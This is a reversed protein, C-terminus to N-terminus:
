EVIHQAYVDNHSYVVSKQAGVYGKFEMDCLFQIIRAHAPSDRWEPRHWVLEGRCFRSETPPCDSNDMDAPPNWDTPGLVSYCADAESFPAGTRPVYKFHLKGRNEPNCLVQKLTEPDEPQANVDVTMELFTFKHSAISGRAIGGSERMPDIFGFIKSYGLQERGTLIADAVDEWLVPEFMATFQDKEGNFRVPIEVHVINYGEGQLWAINKLASFTIVVHPSLLEYKEPLISELCQASVEFVVKYHTTKTPSGYVWRGGEPKQRPTVCPGFVVPMTYMKGEEFKFSM